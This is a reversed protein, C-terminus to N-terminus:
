NKISHFYIPAEFYSEFDKEVNKDCVIVQKKSLNLMPLDSIEDSWSEFYEYQGQINESIWSSIKDVKGNSYCISGVADSGYVGDNVEFDTGIVTFPYEQICYSVAFYPSATVILIIKGDDLYNQLHYLVKKRLCSNVYKKHCALAQRVDDIKRGKILEGILRNKVLQIDLSKFVKIRLYFCIVKHILYYRKKLLSLILSKTTDINTLTNDYDVLVISKL